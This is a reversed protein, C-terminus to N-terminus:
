MKWADAKRCAEAHEPTELHQAMERKAVWAKCCDCWAERTLAADRRAALAEYRDAADAQDLAISLKSDM